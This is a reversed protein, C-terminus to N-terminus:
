ERRQLDGRTLVFYVAMGCVTLLHFFNCARPSAEIITEQLSCKLEQFCSIEKNKNHAMKAEGSRYGSDQNSKSGHRIPVMSQNVM